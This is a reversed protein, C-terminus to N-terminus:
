SPPIAEPNFFRGFDYAIQLKGQFNLDKRTRRIFTLFGVTVRLVGGYATGIDVWGM